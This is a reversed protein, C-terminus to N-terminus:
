DNLFREIIQKRNDWDLYIDKATQRARAPPPASISCLQDPGTYGFRRLTRLDFLVHGLGRTAISAAHGYPMSGDANKYTHIEALLEYLLTNIESRARDHQDDTIIKSANAASLTSCMYCMVDNYHVGNEVFGRLLETTTAHRSPLPKAIPSKGFVSRIINLLSIM